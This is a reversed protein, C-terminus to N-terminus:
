SGQIHTIALVVEPKNSSISKILRGVRTHENLLEYQVHHPARTMENNAECYKGIISGYTLLRPLSPGHGRGHRPPPVTWSIVALHRNLALPARGVLMAFSLPPHFRFPDTVDTLLDSPGHGPPASPSLALKSSWSFVRGNTPLTNEHDELSAGRRSGRTM